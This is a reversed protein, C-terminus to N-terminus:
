AHERCFETHMITFNMGQYDTTKFIRKAKESSDTMKRVQLQQNVPTDVGHDGVLWFPENSFLGPKGLDDYTREKGEHM